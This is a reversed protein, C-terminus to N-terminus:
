KYIRNMFNKSIFALALAGVGGIVVKSNQIFENFGRQHEGCFLSKSDYVEKNCGPMKCIQQKLKKM